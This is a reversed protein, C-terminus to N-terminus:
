QRTSGAYGDGWANAVRPPDDPVDVRPLSQTDDDKEM